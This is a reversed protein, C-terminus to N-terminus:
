SPMPLRVTFVTGQGLQSEVAIDGGQAEVLERAIALGLGSGNGTRAIDGRYFREFIHPLTEPPIGRGTDRVCIAVGNGEAASTLRIATGASTHVLANDLLALLVQKLADHDGVVQLDPPPDCLILGQPAIVKMQRCVDELLPKLPLPERRLQQGADARALALLQNVLRILRDVEDRTDAIVELASKRM